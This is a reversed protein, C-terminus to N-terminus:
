ADDPVNAPEKEADAGGGLLIGMHGFTKRNTSTSPKGGINPKFPYKEKTHLALQLVDSALSFGSLEAKPPRWGENYPFREEEVRLM